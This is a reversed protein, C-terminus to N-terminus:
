SKSHIKSLLQRVRLWLSTSGSPALPSPEPEKFVETEGFPNGNVSTLKPYVALQPDHNFFGGISLLNPLETLPCGIFDAFGGITQLSSLNTVKSSNFHANHGITQLNSLNTVKSSNFHASHGITQLNTLDAVESEEFYASGGITRLNSLNAVTTYTFDAFGGIRRLNSLDAVQSHRFDASGGITILNSLDTVQSYQFGAFGGIKNLKSLNTIKSNDFSAVGGIKTLNSLDAVQSDRFDADGDVARLNVFKAPTKSRDRISGKVSIISGRQTDSLDTTDVTIGPLQCWQQLKEDSMTDTPRIEGKVVTERSALLQEIEDLGKLEGALTFLRDSPINIRHLDAVGSINISLPAQQLKTFLAWIMPFWEEKGSVLEDKSKKMQRVQGTKPRYEITLLPQGEADRLSWIESEGKQIENLYHDSNGVCNEMAASEQVLHRKTTLRLLSHNTVSALLEPETTADNVTEILRQRNLEANRVAHEDICAAIGIDTKLVAEWSQTIADALSQWGSPPSEQAIKQLYIQVKEQVLQWHAETLEPMRERLARELDTLNIETSVPVSDIQEQPALSVVLFPIKKSLDPVPLDQDPVHEFGFRDTLLSNLSPNFGHCSVSTFGDRATNKIIKKLQASVAGRALGSEPKIFGFYRIYLSREGRYEQEECVLFGVTRGHDKWIMNFPSSGGVLRDNIDDITTLSIDLPVVDAMSHLIVEIWRTGVEHHELYNPVGKASIAPLKSDREDM